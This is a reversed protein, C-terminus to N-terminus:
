LAMWVQVFMFRKGLDRGGIARALRTAKAMDQPPPPPPPDDPPLEFGGGASGGTAVESTAADEVTVDPVGTLRVGVKLPPKPTIVGPLKGVVEPVATDTVGVAVV